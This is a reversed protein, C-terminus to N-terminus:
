TELTLRLVRDADADGIRRPAGPRPEDLLGDLRLRVFRSRWKGMTPLALRM